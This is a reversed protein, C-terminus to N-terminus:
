RLDIDKANYWLFNNVQCYDDIKKSLSKSANYELLYVSLGQRKVKLLYNKFYTTESEKQKGCSKNDFNIKTFVTEQNIGDFLSSAINKNLCKTVFTDGGNIIITLNYKRLGKLINQLGKFINNNPYQYYIDTNDIFFGNLGMNAYNKGLENVIFDQWRSSSVDIWREDPWDQYVDLFLNKNIRKIIILTNIIINKM